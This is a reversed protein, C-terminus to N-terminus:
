ELQEKKYNEMKEKLYLINAKSHEKEDSKQNSNAQFIDQQSQEIKSLDLGIITKNDSKKPTSKPPTQFNIPQNKSYPSIQLHNKHSIMNSPSKMSIYSKSPSYESAYRSTKNKYVM